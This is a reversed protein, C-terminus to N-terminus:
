AGGGSESRETGEGYGVEAKLEELAAEGASQEGAAAPAPAAQSEALSTYGVEKMLQDLTAQGAATTEAEKAKM